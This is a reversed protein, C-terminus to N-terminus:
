KRGPYGPHKEEIEREGRRQCGWSCVPRGDVRYVWEASLKEFRKGCVPCTLRTIMHGYLSDRVRQAANRNRINNLAAEAAALKARKRNEETLCGCHPRPSDKLYTRAKVVVRGCRCQCRWWRDRAYCKVGEPKEGLGLVKLLGLERGTLDEGHGM